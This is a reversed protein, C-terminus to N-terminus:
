IICLNIITDLDHLQERLTSTTTSIYDYDTMNKFRQIISENLKQKCRELFISDVIEPTFGDLIEFEWCKYINSHNLKFRQMNMKLRKNSIEYAKPYYRNFENLAPYFYRSEWFKINSEKLKIIEYQKNIQKGYVWIKQTFIDHRSLMQIRNFHMTNIIDNILISANYELNEKSQINHKDCFIALKDSSFTAARLDLYNKNIYGLETTLESHKKLFTNIGSAYESNIMNLLLTTFYPEYNVPKNNHTNANSNDRGNPYVKIIRYRKQKKGNPIYEEIDSYPQLAELIRDKKYNHQAKEKPIKKGNSLLLEECMRTISLNDVGEYKQLIEMNPFLDQKM